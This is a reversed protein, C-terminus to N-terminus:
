WCFVQRRIANTGPTKHKLPRRSAPINRKVNVTEEQWNQDDSTCDSTSDDEEMQDSNNSNLVQESDNDNESEDDNSTEESLEANYVLM